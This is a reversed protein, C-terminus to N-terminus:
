AAIGYPPRGGWCVQNPRTVSLKRLLYPYIQHGSAPKSTNPKRYLAEIGMRKMLTSVHLRGVTFGEALLLDRLMRSGAFPFALHLEDMRRMLALDAASVPEPQDYLSSRSIGLVEAQRSLPMAHSCDIMAKREAV